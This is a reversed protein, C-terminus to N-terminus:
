ETVSHRISRVERDTILPLYQIKKEPNEINYKEIDEELFKLPKNLASLIAIKYPM